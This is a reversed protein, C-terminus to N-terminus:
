EQDSEIPFARYPPWLYQDGDAIPPRNELARAENISMAGMRVLKDEVNTRTSADVRLLADVNAKVYVPGPLARNIAGEIRQIWGHLPYILTALNRQEVNAYTMSDGSKAGIDEPRLGFFTAIMADNAQITELFQSEEPAVQIQQYRWGHGLTRVERKNDADNWRRKAEKAVDENIQNENILVASPTAGETFFESGFQRAALGLGVAQAVYSLPSLGIPSGPIEYASVRWMEDPSIENNEYYFQVPDLKGKRQIRWDDPHTIRIETPFFSRDRSLVLGYANGRMLLSILVQRRWGIADMEPDPEDILQVRENIRTSVGGVDQYGHWPLTSILDAIRNTSAWVAIHRLATNWAIPGGTWPTSGLRRAAFAAMVEDTPINLSAARSERQVVNRLISM